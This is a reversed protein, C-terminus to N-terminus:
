TKNDENKGTMNVGHEEANQTSQKFLYVIKFFQADSSVM